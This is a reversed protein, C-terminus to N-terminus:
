SSCTEDLPDVSFVIEFEQCVIPMDDTPIRGTGKLERQYYAWHTERWSRLTRDGEGELRAHEATVDRFPVVDVATTRIICQAMGRWNTVIDLDGVTPVPLGRSELFWLSPSTARKLGTLVLAACADADHANDCFHWVAPVPASDPLSMYTVYDAWLRAVSPHTDVHM